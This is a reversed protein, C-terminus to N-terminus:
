LKCLGVKAKSVGTVEAIAECVAAGGVNLDVGQHAPAIKGTALYAAALTDQPSLRLISRFM